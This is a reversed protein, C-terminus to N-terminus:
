SNMIWQDTFEHNFVHIWIWLNMTRNFWMWSNMRIPYSKMIQFEYGIFEYILVMFEYTLRSNLSVLTGSSILERHPTTVRCRSGPSARPLRRPEPPRQASTKSTHTLRPPAPWGGSAGRGERIGELIDIVFLLHRGKLCWTPGPDRRTKFYVQSQNKPPLNGPLILENSLNWMNTCLPELNENQVQKTHLLPASLSIQKSKHHLISIIYSFLIITGFFEFSHNLNWTENM